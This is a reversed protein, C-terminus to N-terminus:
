LKYVTEAAEAPEEPKESKETPLPSVIHLSQLSENLVFEAKEWLSQVDLQNYISLEDFLDLNRLLLEAMKYGSSSISDLSLLFAGTEAKVKLAFDAGGLDRNRVAQQLAQYISTAAKHPDESYSACM